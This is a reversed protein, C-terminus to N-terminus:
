RPFWPSRERSYGGAMTPPGFAGTFGNGRTDAVRCPTVPYFNLATAAASSIFVATVSQPASMTVSQPNATGGLAGGWGNFKYGTNPAATLQVTTGSNYYGSASTPNASITGNGM